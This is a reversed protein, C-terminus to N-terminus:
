RSKQRRLMLKQRMAASFAPGRKSVVTPIKEPNVWGAGMEGGVSMATRDRKKRLHSHPDSTSRHTDDGQKEGTKVTTSESATSMKKTYSDLSTQKLNVNGTSAASEFLGFVRDYDPMDREKLSRAYQLAELLQSPLGECLKEPPNAEKKQIVLRQLRAQDMETINMWPLSGRITYVVSILLSELDDKPGEAGGKLVNLSLFYPNGVLDRSASNRSRYKTAESFDILYVCTSRKGRGFLINDPKVDRHIYGKRHLWKLVKGAQYAIRLGVELGM